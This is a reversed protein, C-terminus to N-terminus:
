TKETQKNVKKAVTLVENKEPKETMGKPVGAGSFLRFFGELIM